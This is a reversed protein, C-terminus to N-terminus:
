RGLVKYTAAGRVQANAAHRIPLLNRLGAATSSSALSANSFGMRIKQWTHNTARTRKLVLAQVKVATFRQQVEPTASFVTLFKSFDESPCAEAYARDLFGGWSCAAFIIAFVSNKKFVRNM